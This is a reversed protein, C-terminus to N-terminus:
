KNLSFIIRLHRFGDRFTRLKSQGKRHHYNIPVEKVKFNNKSANIIMESAFEMGTTKLNLQKFKQYTIARMGCNIDNAETSFRIKLLYSLFPSGFYRHLFPMAGKEISGIFRNGIVFDYGLDLYKIFKPLEFFDYTGDPDALFIYEGKAVKFGEMCANGYGIKNHRILIVGFQEAIQPSTDQSSDSVIIEGFIKNEKLIKTINSLCSGLAEEENHCPLIVSVKPRNSQDIM